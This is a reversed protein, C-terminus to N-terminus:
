CILLEALLVSYYPMLHFQINIFNILHTIVTTLKVIYHERSILFYQLFLYFNDSPLTDLYM